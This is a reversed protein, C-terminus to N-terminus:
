RGAERCAGSEGGGAEGRADSESLSVSSDGVDSLYRRDALDRLREHFVDM